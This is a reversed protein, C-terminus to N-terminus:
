LEPELFRALKKKALEIADPYSRTLEINKNTLTKLLSVIGNECNESTIVVIPWTDSKEREIQSFLDITKALRNGSQYELEIFDFVLVIPNVQFFYQCVKGFLYDCEGNGKSGEAIKGVVKCYLIGFNSETKFFTTLKENKDYNIEFFNM